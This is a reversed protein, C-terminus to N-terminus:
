RRRDDECALIELLLAQLSVQAFGVALLQRKGVVREIEDVRM